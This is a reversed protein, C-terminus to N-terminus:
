RHLPLFKALFLCCGSYEGFGADPNETKIRERWDQSFFMYASLARKPADPNKKSSTGKSRTPANEGKEAAKRQNSPPRISNASCFVSVHRMGQDKHIREADVSRPEDHTTISSCPFSFPDSLIFKCTAATSLSSPRQHSSRAYLRGLRHLLYSVILLVSCANRTNPFGAILCFLCRPNRAPQTYGLASPVVDSGDLLM